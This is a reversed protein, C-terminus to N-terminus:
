RERPMNNFAMNAFPTVTVNNKDFFTENELSDKSIKNFYRPFYIKL